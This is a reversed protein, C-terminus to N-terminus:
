GPPRQALRRHQFGDDLLVTDLHFEDRARRALACRDAGVLLLVQPCRRAILLPEDGAEDVSPLAESGRFVCPAKSGRGYGRSLVGVRRGAAVLQQALHLVAPTKGTGGVHLNGVSIVRLGDIREPVLVGRDYLAGRLWVGAGFGWSLGTLPALLVRRTWPEPGAPYFVREVLTSTGPESM